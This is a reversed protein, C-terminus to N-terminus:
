EKKTKNIENYLQNNLENIKLRFETNQEVFGQNLFFLCIIVTILMCIIIIEM